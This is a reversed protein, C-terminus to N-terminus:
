ILGSAHLDSATQDITKDTAAFIAEQNSRARSALEEKMGPEYAVCGERLLDEKRQSRSNIWKGSAPSVYAPIEPIFAPASIIRLMPEGCHFESLDRQAIKRFHTERHSCAPCQFDYFPM